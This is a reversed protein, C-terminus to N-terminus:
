RRTPIRILTYGIALFGALSLWSGARPLWSLEEQGTLLWTISPRGGLFWAALSLAAIAEGAILGSAVFTGHDESRRRTEEDANAIVRDALWKMMGGLFIAASIEFPLYMGIAILMPARAGCLILVFGLAVGIGLLGWTMQGGGIAQAFEAMLAAQPAPLSLGGIGGTALNAEHLAIVPLMLFLALLAVALMQVLEMRWPTGGLLHGAKLDQMLSGSVSAAIAVVAAVGLVAAIGAAGTEGIALMLLAALILAPLTLGSLPQSTAGALGVLYGGMACILFGSVAMVLAAGIAAPWGHTFGYYISVIPVLLAGIGFIVGRLPLDQERTEEAPAAAFVGRLLDILPRRLSFVTNAAGALMVGAAIPRVFQHWVGLAIVDPTLNKHSLDPDFFLLLPVIVWWALVGGAFNAAALSPGVIYGIGILAPSLAPTAWAVGGGRAFPLFGRISDRFIQLGKSDALIQLFGAFAMSGFILRSAGSREASTSAVAEPWELTQDALLPRRILITFLVGLMGGTVLLMSAQWYHSRLDAWLPRGNMGAILFSPIVFVAGSILAEGASASTRAIHQELIGARMGRIKFLTAASVAAPVTAAVTWGAKLGLYANVAGFALALFVGLTVAKVSLERPQDM